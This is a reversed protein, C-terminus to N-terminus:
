TTESAVNCPSPNKDFRVAKITSQNKWLAKMIRHHGDLLEGNEDLIIPFSLDAKEITRIHMVMERLTLNDYSYNLYLHDLPIELVKFNKTLQILRSINWHDGNLTAVQNTLPDCFSEIKM